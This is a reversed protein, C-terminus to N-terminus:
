LPKLFLGILVTPKGLSLEKPESLLQPFSLFSVLAQLHAELGRIVIESVLGLFVFNQYLFEVGLPLLARPKLCLYLLQILIAVFDFFRSVIVLVCPVLSFLLHFFGLFGVFICDKLQPCLYM